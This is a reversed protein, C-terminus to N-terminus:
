VDDWRCRSVNIFKCGGMVARGEEDRWGQCLLVIGCVCVCVCVGRAGACEECFPPHIYFNTILYLDRSCFPQIEASRPM